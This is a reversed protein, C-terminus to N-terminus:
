HSCLPQGIGFFSSQSGAGKNRCAAVVSMIPDKPYLFYRRRPPEKPDGKELLIQLSFECMLERESCQTRQILCQEDMETIETYGAMRLTGPKASKAEKPVACEKDPTRVTGKKQGGALQKLTYLELKKAAFSEKLRKPLTEPDVALFDPIDEPPLDTTPAKVFAEVMKVTEPDAKAEAASASGSLVLLFLLLAAPLTM